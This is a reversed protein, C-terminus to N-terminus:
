GRRASVERRITDEFHLVRIYSRQHVFEEGSLDHSGSRVVSADVGIRV